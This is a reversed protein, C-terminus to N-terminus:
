ESLTTTTVTTEPQSSSTVSTTTIEPAVAMLNAPVGALGYYKQYAVLLDHIMYKSYEGGEIVGAFAVEPDDAPAYGIFFSDQFRGGPQPTGTKIAVDYGLNTLSYNAPTNRAAAIMGAEIYDYVYDYNLEIKQNVVPETKQYCDDTGYNYIGEVLYPKYRVGENAITSAVCAMQLPTVGCEDNGIGAQLVHGSTWNLGLRDFEEPTTLYGANDGSEIGTHQGLGYLTAYKSLGDITLRQAVEYFYINCSVEIARTVSIGHHTGTCHFMTDIYKYDHTCNFSTQGNVIGENLGATATITKFTSGPRYLGDTARNILPTNEANLIEDYHESYDNLNYTPATAMGRVAGTKADLVVISGCKAYLKPNKNISPFNNIFNVLINQLERQYGSNITLKLTKGETAPVTIKEDIVAGDSITVNKKGKSGRLIDEMASELGSKGVVDNLAYGKQKLEEYEEAYIPGVTGIEHPIVDGQAINRVAAEVINVGRLVTSKEKLELLTDTDINEAFIFDTSYAFDKVILEYRLGAIIRKEEDTYSSAIEYDDILKDICNEATAYVNLSILKRLEAAEEDSDPLFVYPMTKSVPLSDSFEFGHKKLIRYVEILVRNGETNDEPFFAKELVVNNGTSNCIIPNGNLDVIEGRTPLIVKNYSFTNDHTVASQIIEDNGVVQIKMLRVASLTGLLLVIFVAILVKLRNIFEKM